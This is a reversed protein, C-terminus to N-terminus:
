TARRAMSVNGVFVVGAWWAHKDKYMGFLFRVDVKGDWKADSSATSVQQAAPSLFRLVLLPFACGYLLLLPVGLGFASAPHCPSYPRLTHFHMGAPLTSLSDNNGNSKSGVSLTSNAGGDSSSYNAGASASVATTNQVDALSTCNMWLVLTSVTQTFAINLLFLFFRFSLVPVRRWPWLPRDDPEQQCPPPESVQVGAIQVAAEADAPAEATVAAAVQEERM